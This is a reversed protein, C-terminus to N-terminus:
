LTPIPTGVVMRSIQSSSSSRVSLRCRPIWYSGAPWVKTVWRRPDMEAASRSRPNRAPVGSSSPRRRRMAQRAACLSATASRIAAAWARAPQHAADGAANVQRAPGNGVLGDAPHRVRQGMPSGVPIGAPAPLVDPQAMPPQRDDVERGGATLRHGGRVALGHDDVVALDVVKWLKPSLELAQTVAEDGARIGLHHEVGVALPAAAHQLPEIA